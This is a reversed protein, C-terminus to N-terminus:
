NISKKRSNLVEKSFQKMNLFNDLMNLTPFLVKDYFYINILSRM